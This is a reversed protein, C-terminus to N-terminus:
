NSAVKYYAAIHKTVRYGKREPKTPETDPTQQLPSATANTSAAAGAAAGVAAGGKLFARRKSDHIDSKSM